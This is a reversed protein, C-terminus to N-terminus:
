GVSTATLYVQIYWEVISWGKWQTYIWVQESSDDLLNSESGVRPSTSGSSPKSSYGRDSNLSTLSIVSGDKEKLVDFPYEYLSLPTKHIHSASSPRCFSLSPALIHCSPTLPPSPYFSRIFFPLNLSFAISINCLLNYITSPNFPFSLNTPLLICILCIFFQYFKIISPPVNVCLMAHMCPFNQCEVLWCWLVNLTM